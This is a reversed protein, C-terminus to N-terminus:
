SSRNRGPQRLRRGSVAVQEALRHRIVADVALNNAIQPLFTQDRDSILNRRIAWRHGGQLRDRTVAWKSAEAADGNVHVVESTAGDRQGPAEPLQVTQRAPRAGSAPRTAPCSVPRCGPQQGLCGDCPLDDDGLNADVHAAEWGRPV